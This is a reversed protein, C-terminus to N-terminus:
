VFRRQIRERFVEYAPSAGDEPLDIIETAAIDSAQEATCGCFVEAAMENAPTVLDAVVRARLAFVAGQAIEPQYQGARDWFSKLVDADVGGAYTAALGAGSMLDSRRAPAFKGISDYLRDINGGAVFWMARGVGQDIVRNTYAAPGRWATRSPAYQSHVWKQPHFFAMHFGYGDMILWRLCAHDALKSQEPLAQQWMLQPLRALAFGLGIYAMFIHKSGPGSDYDPGALFRETLKPRRLPSMVDRMALAMVAGEYAFGRFERELSDLRTVLGDFGKQEIGFEYGIIFQLASAELQERAPANSTDFGRAAFSAEATDPATLRKRLSGAITAAM